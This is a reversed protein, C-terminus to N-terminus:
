LELLGPPPLIEIRGQVLDVIPVIQDVFPILVKKAQTGPEGGALEVELLDNGAPIISVVHGIPQATVQHWVALGVLDLIHFEGPELQPRDCEPV